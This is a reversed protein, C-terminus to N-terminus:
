SATRVPTIQNLRQILMQENYPKTFYAIAGLSMALKRHKEGSRSTLMMVPLHRLRADAKVKALLRYGDLRPMEIDCILVDVHLGNSLKELAEQGDKAQEVRYSAKELALALLRRVAISDDIILVKPTQNLLYMTSPDPTRPTPSSPTTRLYQQPPAPPLYMQQFPSPLQPTEASSPIDSSISSQTPDEPPITRSRDAEWAAGRVREQESVHAPNNEVPSPSSLAPASAASPPTEESPPTTSPAPTHVDSWRSLLPLSAASASDPPILAQNRLITPPKSQEEAAPLSLSEASPLTSPIESLPEFVDISESETISSLAGEDPMEGIPLNVWPRTDEPTSQAEVDSLSSVPDPFPPSSPQGAPLVPTPAPALPLAQNTPPLAQAQQLARQHSVIWHLLAPVNVLPVVRGDGLVTCSSFGDPLHPLSAVRRVTVEQERWCRDVEIGVTQDNRKMILVAPTKISPPTELVHPMARPCNFSLWQSLLILEAMQGDYKFVQRGVATLIQDPQLIMMEDVADVPFAILMGQSEAILVRTVSLTLPVSLSFTTGHGSRTSVKIDGHIQELRDRVVDMGVGRGSLDTTTEATSFGPEFILSLIEQESATALLMEDLGMRRARARIKDLAIGRGDDTISIITRNGQHTARIEILGVDPKGCARRTPADELGHDFANRVLHMLPDNLGDLVTRDILTSGGHLKFEVPKNHKLSLERLARPFRNAIDSLPRMRVHMLQTQLRRATKNLSRMSQEGDGLNLDIDEAVEQIRVMSEMVAQFLHHLDTYQDMELADFETALDPDIGIEDQDANVAESDDFPPQILPDSPLTSPNINSLLSLPLGVTPTALGQDYASRLQNNAQDLARVRRSLIKVLDRLRKLHLTLGNRDITLEGFLDNLQNLHKVSVRIVADQIEEETLLIEASKPTQLQFETINGEAIAPHTPTAPALASSSSDIPVLSSSDPPRVIPHAIPLAEPEPEEPFDVFNNSESELNGSESGQDPHLAPLSESPTEPLPSSPSLTNTEQIFEDAIPFFDDLTLIADDPSLFDGDTDDPNVVEVASGAEMDAEVDFSVASADAYLSATSTSTSPPDIDEEFLEIYSTDQEEADLEASDLEEADRAGPDRESSDLFVDYDSIASGSAEETIPLASDLSMDLGPYTVWIDAIPSPYPEVGNEDSATDQSDDIDHDEDFLSPESPDLEAFDLDSPNLELSDFESLDLESSDLASALDDFDLIGSESDELEAHPELVNFVQSFSEVTDTDRTELEWDELDLDGPTGPSSVFSASTPHALGAQDSNAQEFASHDPESHDPDLPWLESHNQATEDSESDHLETDTLDRRAGIGPYTTWPDRLIISTDLEDDEDDQSRAHESESPNPNLVSGSQPIDNSQDSEIQAAYEEATGSVSDGLSAENGLLADLEAFIDSAGEGSLNESLNNSLHDSLGDNSALDELLGDDGEELADPWGDGSALPDPWGDSSLLEDSSPEEVPPQEDLFDESLLDAYPQEGHELQEDEQLALPPPSPLAHETADPMGSSVSSDEAKQLSPDLDALTLAQIIATEDLETTSSLAESPPQPSDSAAAAPSAEDFVLSTSDAPLYIVNNDDSDNTDNNAAVEAAEDHRSESLYAPREDDGLPYPTSFLGNAQETNPTAMVANDTLAIEDSAHDDWISDTVSLDEDGLNEEQADEGRIVIGHATIFLDDPLEDHTETDNFDLENSETPRSISVSPNLGVDAVEDCNQEETLGHDLALDPVEIQTPLLDLQQTLVLSQSRRWEAVAIQAIDEARNPAAQIAYAISACLQSFADLQLMAGLGGLEQALILIEEQLCPKDPTALLAEIRELCGEVETEFLVPLIEQGDEPSLVSEVNEEQPDGLRHHLEDFTPLATYELWESTIPHQKLECTIVIRLCDVGSLLLCELQGDIAVNRQVKLVKLADEIRHALNSLVPFGMLSGGGKISHAARLAANLEAGDVRRNSLGMFASELTQLHDQAEDLFQLQIEREQEDAM